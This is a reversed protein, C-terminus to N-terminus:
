LNPSPKGWRYGQGYEVGVERLVQAISENEVWEAVVVKGLTHAATYMAQVLSRNTPDTDLNRIFSGDIKVYDAPLVRLYAFSSFGIGFDDLAFRCGLVKLQTMWLKVREMDRVAATETVEFSLRAALDGSARLRTETYARLSEDSLSQGSLNVFLHVDPRERLQTLASDLVWRDIAPMLRFREAAGLFAGPPLLTGDPQELRILAEYHDVAGSALHVIPQFHLRLRHERLAEKVMAALRNEEALDTPKDWESEYVTVQNRGTEKAAVLAANALAKVSSADLSGDIMAVGVSASVSITLEGQQFRLESVAQRLSEARGRAADATMPGVLVAFQDGGFRTLLDGSRLSQQLLRTLAILLEDGGRDGLTDNVVKFHDLDLLIMAGRRQRNSRAIMQELGEQLARRNPLGTLPDHLALFRLHEEQQRRETVDQAISIIHTIRGEADRVPTITQEMFFSSGDKRRVTRSVHWAGSALLSPWDTRRGQAIQPDVALPERVNGVTEEATYGTMQTWAQNVWRVRGDADAIMIANAAAELAATQLLIEEQDRAALISLAVQNAFQRLHQQTEEDFASSEMAYLSLAGITQGRASLPLSLCTWPGWMHDMDPQGYGRPDPHLTTLQTQGTFIARGTPGNPEPGWVVKLGELRITAPGAKAACRVTGDPEKMGIYAMRYGFLSVVQECTFQLIEALGDKQLIRHDITHLLEQISHLQQLNTTDQVIMLVMPERDNQALTITVICPFTSGDKRRHVTEVRGSGGAVLSDLGPPRTGEARLEWACLHALEERSYGYAAVAAANAHTIQGTTPSHFLIITSTSDSMLRYRELEEQSQRRETVDRNVAVFHTTQGQSDRIPAVTWEVLGTTGDRRQFRFDGSGTRGAQLAEQAVRLTTAATASHILAGGPRGLDANPDLGFIRISAPNATIIRPGTDGFEATAIMIGEDTHAIASDMLRLLEEEQKRGIAIVALDAAKRVTEAVAATRPGYVALLGLFAGTSSALKLTCCLHLGAAAAREALVAEHEGGPLSAVMELFAAPLGTGAACVLERGGPATTHISCPKGTESRVMEAAAALVQPLPADSAIAALIRNQAELLSETRRRERLAGDVMTYLLWGTAAVFAWGKYTQAATVREPTRLIAALLRDSFFIWLVSVTGYTLVLRTAPRNIIQRM